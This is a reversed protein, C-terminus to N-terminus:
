LAITIKSGSEMAEDSLPVPNKKNKIDDPLAIERAENSAFAELVTSKARPSVTHLAKASAVGAGALLLLMMTAAGAAMRLYRCM